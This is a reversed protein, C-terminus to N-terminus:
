VKLPEQSYTALDNLSENLRVQSSSLSFASKSDEREEDEDDFLESKFREIAEQGEEIGDSGGDSGQESEGEDEDMLDENDLLSLEEEDGDEFSMEEDLEGEDEEDSSAAVLEKTVEEELEEETM